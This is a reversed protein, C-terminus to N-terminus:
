NTKTWTEREKLMQEISKHKPKSNFEYNLMEAIRDVNEGNPNKQRLLVAPSIKDKWFPHYKSKYVADKIQEFTYSELWYQLNPEIAKTSSYNTNHAKNYNELFKEAQERIPNTSPKKNITKPKHNINSSQKFETQVVKGSTDQYNTQVSNLCQEFHIQVEKPVSELEKKKAEEVRTNRVYDVYAAKHNHYVWEEHFYCWGLKELDEKALQLQTSNLGTDFQIQRDSIRTYVTLGLKENSILYCFLLKTTINTEAFKVDNWLKPYVIRTKM